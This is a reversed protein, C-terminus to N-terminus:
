VYYNSLEEKYLKIYKEQMSTLSYNKMFKHRAAKSYQDRLSTSTILIELKHAYEMLDDKDVMFSFSPDMIKRSGINESTVIPLGSAMAELYVQGFSEEEQYCTFIDSNRYYEPLRLNPIFGLLKVHNELGLNNILSSLNDYEPGDGIINITFNFNKDRLMKAAEILKDFRKRPILYGVAIIKVKSNTIQVKKTPHYKKESAGPTIVAVKSTDIYKGVLIKTPEDYVIVKNAKQLTKISLYLLIKQIINRSKEQDNYPMSFSGIFFPIGKHLNLLVVLNFTYGFNFPRVHHIVDFKNKRLQKFTAWTYKLTFIIAQRTSMNYIAHKSNVEIIEYNLKRKETRKGTIVVSKPWQKILANVIDYSQTFESGRQEGEYVYHAPAFLIKLNAISESNEKKALM